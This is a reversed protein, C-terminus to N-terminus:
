VKRRRRTKEIDWAIAVSIAAFVLLTAVIALAVPAVEKAWTVTVGIGIILAGGGLVIGVLVGFVKASTWFLSVLFEKTM